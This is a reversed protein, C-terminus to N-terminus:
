LAAVESQSLRVIKKVSLSQMRNLCEHVRFSSDECNIRSKKEGAKGRLPLRMSNLRAFIEIIVCM